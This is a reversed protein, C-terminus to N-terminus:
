LLWVYSVQVCERFFQYCWWRWCTSCHVGGRLWGASCTASIHVAAAAAVHLQYSSVTCHLPRHVTVVWTLSLSALRDSTLLCRTCLLCLCVSLSVHLLVVPQSSHWYSSAVHTRTIVKHQRTIEGCWHNRTVAFLERIYVYADADVTCWTANQCSIFSSHIVAQLRFERHM